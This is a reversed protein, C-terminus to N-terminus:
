TSEEDKEDGSLIISKVKGGIVFVRELIL